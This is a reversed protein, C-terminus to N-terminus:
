STKIGKKYQNNKNKLMKSQLVGHAFLPNPAKSIITNYNGPVLHLIAGMNMGFDLAVITVRSSLSYM